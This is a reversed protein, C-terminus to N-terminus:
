PAFLAQCLHASKIVCFLLFFTRESIHLKSPTPNQAPDNKRYRQVQAAKPISEDHQLLVPSHSPSQGQPCPKLELANIWCPHGQKRTPELQGSVLGRPPGQKFLLLCRQFKLRCRISCSLVLIYFLVDNQQQQGTKLIQDLHVYVTFLRLGTTWASTM